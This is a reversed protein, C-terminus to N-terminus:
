SMVEACLVTLEVKRENLDVVSVVNLTRGDYLLRSTTTLDPRYPGHIVRAAEAVITGAKVRELDVASASTIQVM